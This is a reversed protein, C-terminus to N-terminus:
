LKAKHTHFKTESMLPSIYSVGHGSDALSSIGVSHGGSTLSTLALRQPYLASRPWRSPDRRSYEQSELGSGSSKRELLEEITSVLSLPGQELGVVEWLIQYCRSDFGSRQIQLWSTQGSFWLPPWPLFMSQPYKLVPHQPFYKSQSSIFHWFTSSFHMILFKMVQVGRGTYKSHDRWPLYSPYPMSCSHPRLIVAYLNNIPFASPFLGSALGLRLHLLLILISRVYSQTIRLPNIQSLVSVLAHYNYVRYGLSDEHEKSHQFNTSYSCLQSTRLSTV